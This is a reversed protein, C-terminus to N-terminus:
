TYSLERDVAEAATINSFEVALVAFRDFRSDPWFPLVSVVFRCFLVAFRCFQNAFRCFPFSWFPLHVNYFYCSFGFNLCAVKPLILVFTGPNIDFGM